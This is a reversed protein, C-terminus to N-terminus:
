RWVTDLSRLAHVYRQTTKLDSHGAARQVVPVPIGRDILASCFYHRLSHFSRHRLGHRRLLADLDNWLAARRGCGFLVHYRAASDKTRRGQDKTAPGSCLPIAL